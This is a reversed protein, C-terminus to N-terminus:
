HGKIRNLLQDAMPVFQSDDPATELLTMLISRAEAIRDLHVCLDAMYFLADPYDAKIELVNGWIELAKDFNGLDKEVMGLQFLELYADPVETVYQSFAHRARGFLGLTAYIKGAIALVDTPASERSLIFKVKELASQYDNKKMDQLCLALLEDQEFVSLNM